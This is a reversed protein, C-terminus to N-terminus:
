KYFQNILLSINRILFYTVLALFDILIYSGVYFLSIILVAFMSSDENFMKLYLFPCVQYLIVIILSALIINKKSYKLKLSSIIKVKEFSAYINNFFLMIQSLVTTIIIYEAYTESFPTQFIAKRLPIFFIVCILFLLFFKDRNSVGEQIYEIKNIKIITNNFCDSLNKNINYITNQCKYAIYIIYLTFPLMFLSIIGQQLFAAYQLYICYLSSVICFSKFIFGNKNKNEINYLFMKLPNINSLDNSIKLNKIKEKIDCLNVDSKCDKEEIKKEKIDNVM